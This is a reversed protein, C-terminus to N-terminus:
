CGPLESCQAKPEQDGNAQDRLLTHHEVARWSVWMIGLCAIVVPLFLEGDNPNQGVWAAVKGLYGQILGADRFTCSGHCLHIGDSQM